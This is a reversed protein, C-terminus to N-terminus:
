SFFEADYSKWDDTRPIGCRVTNAAIVVVALGFLGTAFLALGVRGWPELLFGYILQPLAAGLNIVSAASNFRGLLTPPVALLVYGMMVANFAPIGRAFIGILLM